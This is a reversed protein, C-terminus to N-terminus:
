ICRRIECMGRVLLRLATRAACLRVIKRSRGPYFGKTVRVSGDDFALGFWVTGVPKQPSGGDPGAIGTVSVALRVGFASVAGRAMEAACQGSVAGYKEIIRPNVSLQEIKARNSYTVASGPFSASAGPVSAVSSAVLGGTCSEAFSFLRGLRGFRGDQLAAQSGLYVAVRSLVDVERLLIGSEKM